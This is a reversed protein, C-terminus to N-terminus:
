EDVLKIATRWLMDAGVDTKKEPASKPVADPRPPLAELYTAIAGRDQPTLKAMNGQVAAM